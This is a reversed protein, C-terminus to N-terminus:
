STRLYIQDNFDENLRANRDNAAHSFELEIKFVFEEHM